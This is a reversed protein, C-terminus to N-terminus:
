FAQLIFKKKSKSVLTVIYTIDWEWIVWKYRNYKSDNEQVKYLAMLLIMEVYLSM